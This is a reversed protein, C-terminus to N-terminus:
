NTILAKINATNISKSQKSLSSMSEENGTINTNADSKYVYATILSHLKDFSIVFNSFSSDGCCSLIAKETDRLESPANFSEDGLEKIQMQQYKLGIDFFSIGNLSNTRFM